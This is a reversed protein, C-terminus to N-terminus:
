QSQNSEMKFYQKIADNVIDNVTIRRTSNKNAQVKRLGLETYDEASLYVAIKHTRDKRPAGVGRTATETDSTETKAAATEDSAFANMAAKVQKAM